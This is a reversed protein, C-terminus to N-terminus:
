DASPLLRVPIGRSAALRGLRDDATALGAGEAEALALYLCDPPKHQLLLSLRFAQAALGEDLALRITGRKAYRLLSEVADTAEGATLEGRGVKRFLAASFETLLLRPALSTHPEALVALAARSGPEPVYWRVAVSTDLVLPFPSSSAGPM